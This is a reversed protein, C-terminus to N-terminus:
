RTSEPDPYLGVTEASCVCENEEDTVDLSVVLYRRHRRLYMATLQGTITLRSGVHVPRRFHFRQKAHIGGPRPAWTSDIANILAITLITPPATSRGAVVPVTDDEVAERYANVREESVDFTFPSLQDGVTLDHWRM